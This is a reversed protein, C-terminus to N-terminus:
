FPESVDDAGGDYERRPDMYMAVKRKSWVQGKVGGYSVKGFRRRCPPVSLVRCLIRSPVPLKRLTRFPGPFPQDSEGIKKQSGLTAKSCVVM